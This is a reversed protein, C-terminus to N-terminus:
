PHTLLHAVRTYSKHPPLQFFTLAFGEEARINHVVCDGFQFGMAIRPQSHRLWVLGFATRQAGQQLEVGVKQHLLILPMLVGSIRNKQRVAGPTRRFFATGSAKFVSM